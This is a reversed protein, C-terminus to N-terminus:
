NCQSILFWTWQDKAFLKEMVEHATQGTAEAVQNIQKTMQSIAATNM